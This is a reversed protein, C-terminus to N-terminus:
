TLDESCLVALNKQILGFRDFGRRVCRFEVRGKICVQQLLELARRQAGRTCQM